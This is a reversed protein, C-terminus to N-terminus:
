RDVSTTTDHSEGDVAPFTPASGPATAAPASVEAATAAPASVSAADDGSHPPMSTTSTAPTEQESSPGPAPAGSPTEHDDGTAAVSPRSAPPAEVPEREAPAPSAGSGDRETPPVSTHGGTAAQSRQELDRNAAQADARETPTLEAEARNLDRLDTRVRPLDGADLSRELEARETRMHAQPALGVPLGAMRAADRLPRPLEPHAFAVTGGGVTLATTITAVLASRRPWRRTRAPGPAIEIDAWRDRVAMRLARVSAPSPAVSGPDLAVRVAAILTAESAPVDAM